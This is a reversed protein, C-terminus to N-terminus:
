SYVTAQLVYEIQFATYNVSFYLVDLLWGGSKFVSVIELFLM